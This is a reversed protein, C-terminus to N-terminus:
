RLVVIKIHDDINQYVGTRSNSTIGRNKLFTSVTAFNFAFGEKPYRFIDNIVKINGNPEEIIDLEKEEFNIFFRSYIDFGNFIEILM